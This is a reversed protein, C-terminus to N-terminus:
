KNNTLIFGNEDVDLGCKECHKYINGKVVKDVVEGGCADCLQETEFFDLPSDYAKKWKDFTASMHCVPCFLESDNKVYFDKIDDLSMLKQLDTFYEKKLMGDSCCAQKFKDGNLEFEAVVEFEKKTYNKRMLYIKANDTVGVAHSQGCHPCRVLADETVAQKITMHKVNVVNNPLRDRFPPRETNKNSFKQQKNIDTDPSSKETDGEYRRVTKSEEVKTVADQLAIANEHRIYTIERMFEATLEAIKKSQATSTYNATEVSVKIGNNELKIKM